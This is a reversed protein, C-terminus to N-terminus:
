SEKAAPGVVRVQVNFQASAGAPEPTRNLAEQQDRDDSVSSPSTGREVAAPQQSSERVAFGTVQAGGTALMGVLFYLGGLMGLIFVVLFLQKLM